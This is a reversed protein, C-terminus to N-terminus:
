TPRRARGSLKRELQATCEQGCDKREPWRTCDKLRLTPRKFLSTLAFRLADPTVVARERVESCVVIRKAHARRYAPAYWIALAGAAIAVLFSLELATSM